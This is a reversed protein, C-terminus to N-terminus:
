LAREIAYGVNEWLHKLNVTFDAGKTGKNVMYVVACVAAVCALVLAYEVLEAGRAGLRRKCPESLASCFYERVQKM